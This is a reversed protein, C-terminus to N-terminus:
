QAVLQRAAAHRLQFVSRDERRTERIQCMPLAVPYANEGEVSVDHFVDRRRRLVEVHHQVREVPCTGFTWAMEADGQGLHGLVELSASDQEEDRVEIVIRTGNEVRELWLKEHARIKEWMAYVQNHLNMNRTAAAAPLASILRRTM